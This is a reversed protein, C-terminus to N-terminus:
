SRATHTRALTRHPRPRSSPLRFPLPFSRRSRLLASVMPTLIIAAIGGGIGALLMDSKATEPARTAIKLMRFFTYGLSNWPVDRLVTAGFGRYLRGIGGSFVARAAAGSNPYLGAQVPQKLV